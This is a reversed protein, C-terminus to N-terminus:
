FWFSRQNSAIHVNFVLRSDRKKNREQEEDKKKVQDKQKPVDRSKYREKRFGPM